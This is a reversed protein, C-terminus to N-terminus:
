GQQKLSQILRIVQKKNTGLPANELCILMCEEDSIPIRKSWGTEDRYWGPQVKDELLEAMTCYTKVIIIFFGWWRVPLALTVFPFPDVTIGIM